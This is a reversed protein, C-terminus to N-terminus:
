NHLNFILDTNFIDSNRGMLGGPEACHFTITVEHTVGATCDESVTILTQDLATLIVNTAQPAGDLYVDMTIESLDLDTTGFDAILTATNAMVDLYWTTPNVSHEVYVSFKTFGLAGNGLTKGSSVDSYSKFIFDVSPNRLISLLAIDQANSLVSIAM